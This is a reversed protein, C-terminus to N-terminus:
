LRKYYLKMMTGKNWYIPDACCTKKKWGRRVSTMELSVEIIRMDDKVCDMWIKKPRGRRPHEDVNM